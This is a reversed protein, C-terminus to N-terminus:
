PNLGLHHLANHTPEHLQDALVGAVLGGGGALAGGVLPLLVFEHGGLGISLFCRECLRFCFRFHGGGVRGLRKASYNIPVFRAHGGPNLGNVLLVLFQDAQDVFQVGGAHGAGDGFVEHLLQRKEALIGVGMKGILFVDHGFM